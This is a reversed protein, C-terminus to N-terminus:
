LKNSFVKQFRVVVTVPIVSGQTYTRVIKGLYMSDGRGFLKPKADFAEGCISCKGDSHFALSFKSCIKM